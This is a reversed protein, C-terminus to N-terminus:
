FYRLWLSSFNELNYFLILFESLCMFTFLRAIRNAFRRTRQLVTSTLSFFKDCLTNVAFVSCVM